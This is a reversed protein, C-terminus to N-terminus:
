HLDYVVVKKFMDKCNWDCFRIRLIKKVYNICISFCNEAASEVATQLLFVRWRDISWSTFTIIIIIIIIIVYFGCCSAAECWSASMQCLDSDVTLWHFWKNEPREEAIIKVESQTMKWCIQDTIGHTQILDTAIHKWVIILIPLLVLVAQFPMVQLEMLLNM